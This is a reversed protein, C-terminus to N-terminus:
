GDGDWKWDSGRKGDEKWEGNYRMGDGYWKWDNKGRWDSEGKGYIDWESDTGRRRDCELARENNWRWDSKWRRNQNDNRKCDYNNNNENWKRSNEYLPHIQAQKVSLNLEDQWRVAKRLVSKSDNKM